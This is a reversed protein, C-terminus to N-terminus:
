KPFLHTKLSTKFSQLSQSHRLSNPLKNWTSPGQFSFTRQGYTKTRMCPLSFIRDDSSSRLTRAPTYLHLLASLYLPATSDLVKFCLTSVKYDIRSHIPLWHLSHLLPTVHDFKSSHFVLRSAHNQVKQLKDTLYKPSGALLGNCYDLRSLVFACLLTKTADETLVHRISSIRRIEFYCMRCINAVHQQFSLSQDLTVGLNRVSSALVIPSGNLDVSSPLSTGSSSKQPKILIMETKDENLKLKNVDMWSKLESICSQTSTVLNQVDSISGSVYIQNDDSFSHHSLRHSKVINSVPYTYLIFLIPGLVSGQPVGFQM